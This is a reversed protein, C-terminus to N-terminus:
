HGAAGTAAAWAALPRLLAALECGRDTLSYDVHPPVVPHAERAVIGDAELTRLTQSLMKETVGALLRRLEGWRMTGESLAIIVLVGWRSTVHELLARGPCNPDIIEIFARGNLVPEVEISEKV